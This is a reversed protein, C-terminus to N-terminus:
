HRRRSWRRLAFRKSRMSTAISRTSACRGRRTGCRRRAAHHVDGWQDQHRARQRSHGASHRDGLSSRTSPLSVGRCTSRDRSSRTTKRAPAMPRMPIPFTPFACCCTASIARSSTSSTRWCGSTIVSHAAACSCNRPLKPTVTAVFSVLLRRCTTSRQVFRMRKAVIDRSLADFAIARDLQAMVDSQGRRSLAARVADPDTRLLRVDIM